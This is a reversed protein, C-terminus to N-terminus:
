KVKAAQKAAPKIVQEEPPSPVAAAAAADEEAQLAEIEERVADAAEMALVPVPTSSGASRKSASEAQSERSARRDGRAPPQAPPETADGPSAADKAVVHVPLPTMDVNELRVQVKYDGPVSATFTLTYQGTECDVVQCESAKPGFAKADVRVEGREVNNGYKDVLQLVVEIPTHAVAEKSLSLTSRAAVAPGPKVDFQLPSGIIPSGHLQIIATHAGKATLEAPSVVEYSGLAFFMTGGRALDKKKERQNNNNNNNNGGDGGGGGQAGGGQGSGKNSETSTSSTLAKLNLPVEDSSPTVLHASLEEDPSTLASSNGYEDRAQVRLVLREGAVVQAFSAADKIYSGSASAPGANVHLPHPCGPLFLRNGSGDPDCWVHLEFDGAEKPTYSLAFTSMDWTGEFPLSPMTRVLNAREAATMKSPKKGGEEGHDASKKESSKSKDNSPMAVLVLGLGMTATPPTANGFADRLRVELKAASGAVAIARGDEVVEPALESKAIDPAAPLMALPCPSRRIHVGNILATMLFDGAVTGRWTVLYTGDEKDEVKVRISTTSVSVKLPAGGEVCLNGVNDCLRMLLTGTTGVVCQLPLADAPLSTSPAHAPGPKVEIRFPSGPLAAAKQRLGVHLLYKGVAGISYQVQHVKVLEGHAHLTGPYVGGYAFAIGRRDDALEHAFSPGAAAVAAEDLTEAEVQGSADPRVTGQRVTGTRGTHAVATSKDAAASGGGGGSSSSSGGGGGSMEAQRRAAAAIARDAALRRNWLELHLRRENAESGKPPKTLRSKGGKQISTIWGTASPPAAALQRMSPAGKKPRKGKDPPPPKGQYILVVRARVGGDDTKQTELVRVKAGPLVRCVEATELGLGERMVLPKAGIVSREEVRPPKKKPPPPPAASASASAAAPAPAPAAGDGDGVGAEAAADGSAGAGAPAAAEEEGSEAPPAESAGAGEAGEAPEPPAELEAPMPEVRVDLDEAYAVHGLADVYEIDFAMPQRAVAAKLADGRLICMAPEPRLTVSQVSFPSGPIPQGNITITIQISGSVEPKYEGTYTGNGHDHLKCRINSPPLVGHVTAHLVDGGVTKRAGTEDCATVVFQALQRVVATHLGRGSAVCMAAFAPKIEAAAAEAEAEAQQQQQQEEISLTSNRRKGKRPAPTEGGDGSPPPLAPTPVGSADDSAGAGGGDTASAAAAGPAAASSVSSSSSTKSRKLTQQRQLPNPSSAGEAPPRAAPAAELAESEEASKVFAVDSPRAFGSHSKPCDFLRGVGKLQRATQHAEMIPEDYQIGIWLGPGLAKAVGVYEVIGTRTGNVIVRDGQRYTPIKQPEKLVAAAAANAAANAAADGAKKRRRKEPSKEPSAAKQKAEVAM